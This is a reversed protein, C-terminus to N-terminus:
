WQSPDESHLFYGYATGVDSSYNSFLSPSQMALPFQTCVWRGTSKNYHVDFAKNQAAFTKDSCAQIAASDDAVRLVTTSVAADGTTNLNQSVGSGSFFQVSRADDTWVAPRPDVWNAILSIQDVALPFDVSRSTSTCALYINVTAPGTTKTLGEVVFQYTSNATSDFTTLQLYDENIFWAADCTVSNPLGDGYGFIFLSSFRFTDNAYMNVSQSLLVTSRRNAQVFNHEFLAEGDTYMGDTAELGVNSTVSATWPDIDGTDFGGNILLEKNIGNTTITSSTTNDSMTNNMQLNPTDTASPSGSSTSSSVSGSDDSVTVSPTAVSSSLSNTLSSSGGGVTTLSATLIANSISSAASSPVVQSKTQSILSPRLSTSAAKGSSSSIPRSSVRASSSSSKSAAKSSSSSSKSTAKVSTSSTAKTQTSSTKVSSSKSTSKLTSRPSSSSSSARKSSLISALKSSSRISSSSKKSSSLPKNTSTLPKSTTSPKKTTTTSTSSSKRTSTSSKRSSSSTAARARISMLRASVHDLVCQCAADIEKPDNMLTPLIPPPRTNLWSECFVKRSAETGKSADVIGTDCSGFSLSRKSGTWAPSAVATATYLSAALLLFQM